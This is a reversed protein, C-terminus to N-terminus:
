IWFSHNLFAAKKLNLAPAQTKRDFSCGRVLGLFLVMKEHRPNGYCLPDFM